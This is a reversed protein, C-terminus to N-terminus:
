CPKRSATKGGGTPVRLCFYPMATDFGDISRYAIGRNWLELTTNYFAKDANGVRQTERFYKRVSDLVSRQYEKPLYTAM